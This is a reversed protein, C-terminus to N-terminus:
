DLNLHDLVRPRILLPMTSSILHMLHLPSKLFFSIDYVELQMMLPPLHLSQLHSMYEMCYDNLIWKTACRQVSELLKIDKLLHPRWIQCCYTLQSRMLTLHCNFFGSSTGERYRGTRNVDRVGVLKKKRGRMKMIKFFNM